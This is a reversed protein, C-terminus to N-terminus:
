DRRKERERAEVCQSYLTCSRYVDVCSGVHEARLRVDHHKGQRRLAVDGREHLQRVAEDVVAELNGEDAGLEDV